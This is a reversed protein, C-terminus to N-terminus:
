GFVPEESAAIETRSIGNQKMIEDLSYMKRNESKKSREQAELLLEMNEREEMLRQYDEPSMIVSVPANNKMVVKAGTNKLDEFIKVAEGRNFRSVPVINEMFSLVNIM